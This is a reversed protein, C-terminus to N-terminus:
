ARPAGSEVRLYPDRERGDSAELLNRLAEANKPGIANPTSLSCAAALTAVASVQPLAACSDHKNLGRFPKPCRVRCASPPKQM